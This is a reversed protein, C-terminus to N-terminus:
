PTFLPSPSRRLDALTAKLGDSLNTMAQWGLMKRVLAVDAVSRQIDGERHESFQLISPSGTLEIIIRALERIPTELGTGLNLPSSGPKAFSLASVMAKVIDGIYVFDRTQYGDGFVYIPSLNMASRMFLSIVGSYPSAPDQRPGYVNFFRFMTCPVGSDSVLREGELKQHGYRSIPNLPMDEHVPLEDPDGYVAASSSFVLAAGHQRCAEVAKLTGGVNVAQTREPDREAEVVSAIAALHFVARCGDAARGLLGDELISGHIFEIKDEVSQLNILSGTSLDDLVRVHHGDAVLADVLHSGVFGAGGTVLVPQKMNWGYFVRLGRARSCGEFLRSSRRVFGLRQLDLHKFENWETVLVLADANDCVDYAHDVYVVDPHLKSVAQTAVPDYARIHAGKEKVFKIIELSKADRIDDTNPKFSLGLLAINKGKLGGLRKEMREVFHLTQEDNVKKTAELMEFDYGYSESIRILGLVDKPFCSGGWGLGAQLFQNGIRQDSGMGKAVDNVDGGCLECLRSIANIFSIKMALFSNSAYKILEASNLDTIIMPKELPAYLEVLKVAAERKRAGIVIRDPQLTDHIATGERLFEPNSVVDVLSPDVGADLIINEVMDGSGVPVTSKNVVITYKTIGKAILKAVAQVASLDPAGDDGSPTGVAIFVIDSERTADTVSDTVRFFGDAITRKLMEEVGPEYIPPIGQRLKALKEQDNDVCIVDNGMDALVVGTVLGVYGTGIVAVKVKQNRESQSRRRITGLYGTRCSRTPDPM